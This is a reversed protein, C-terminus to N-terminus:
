AEDTCSSLPAIRVTVDRLRGRADKCRYLRSVEGFAGHIPAGLERADTYGHAWLARLSATTQNLADQESESVIQRRQNELRVRFLTTM